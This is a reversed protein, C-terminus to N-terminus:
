HASAARGSLELWISGLCENDVETWLRPQTKKSQRSHGLGLLPPPQPCPSAHCGMKTTESPDQPVAAPDRGREGAASPPSWAHTQEGEWGSRMHTQFVPVPSLNILIVFDTNEKRHLTLLVSKNLKSKGKKFRCSLVLARRDLLQQLVEEALQLPLPRKLPAGAPATPTRREMHEQKWPPPRPNPMGTPAPSLTGPVGLQCWLDSAMPPTM